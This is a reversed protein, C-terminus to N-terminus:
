SNLVARYGNQEALAHVAYPSAKKVQPLSVLVIWLGDDM